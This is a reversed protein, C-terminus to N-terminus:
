KIVEGGPNGIRGLFLITGTATDEILFLFPRDITLSAQRSPAREGGKLAGVITVAAAETGEEDLRVFAEHSAVGLYLEHPEGGIGSLDATEPDFADTVGLSKLTDVLDTGVRAGFKPLALTVEYSSLRERIDAWTQSTLSGAFAAFGGADPVVFVGRLHSGRYYKAVAQWGAGRAYAMDETQHMVPLRVRSGDLRAFAGPQTRRPVFEEAWRDKFYVANALVLAVPDRLADPTLVRPIRQETHDAAWRNITDVAQGVNGFDLPRVEAGAVAQTAATMFEPRVPYKREPFLANAVLLKGSSTNAEARLRACLAANQGLWADEAPDIGLAKALQARTEGKAGVYLMTLAQHISYPSLFTGREAPQARLLDFAFRNQAAVLAQAPRLPEDEDLGVPQSMAAIPCLGLCLAVWVRRM